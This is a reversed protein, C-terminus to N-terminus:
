RFVTVLDQFLIRVPDVAAAVATQAASTAHSGALQVSEGDVLLPDSLNVPILTDSASETYFCTRLMQDTQFCRLSSNLWFTGILLLGCICSLGACGATDATLDTFFITRGIGDMHNIKMCDDVPFFTHRATHACGFTRTTDDTIRVSNICGTELVNIRRPRALERSAASESLITTQSLRCLATAKPFHHLCCLLLLLIIPSTKSNVTFPWTCRVSSSM